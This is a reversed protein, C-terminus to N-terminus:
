SPSRRLLTETIRWVRERLAADAVRPDPQAQEGDRFYAGSVGGLGPSSACFIPTRAGLEPAIAFHRVISWGFGVVGGVDGFDTAVLGPHLANVTVAAADVRRALEM